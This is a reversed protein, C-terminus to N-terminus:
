TNKILAAGCKDGGRAENHDVIMTDANHWLIRCINDSKSWYGIGVYRTQFGSDVLAVVKNLITYGDRYPDITYEGQDNYIKLSIISYKNPDTALRQGFERWSGSDTEGGYVAGSNIKAEWRVPNSM